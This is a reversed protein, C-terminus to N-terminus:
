NAGGKAKIFDAHSLELQECTYLEEANLATALQGPQQSNLGSATAAPNAPLAAVFDTFRELGGETRCQAKHYDVTAPTIKGATLAANIATEIAVDQQKAKETALATEATNARNLATDYDSRPVFKDLPPNDARNMATAKDTKLQQIANLAAAGDATEPLGLAALIDKLMDPEETTHQQTNLAPLYLNPTNTLGISTLGIVELTKTDYVFAPSLYRYEKNAVPNDEHNFAIKGVIHGEEVRLTDPSIWGTAPAPEGKPAKLETAHEIDVPIDRRQQKCWDIVQQPNSVQWHRGDRGEIKGIPLLKISGSGNTVPALQFNIAIATATGM